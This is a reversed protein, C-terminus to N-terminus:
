HNIQHIILKMFLTKTRGLVTSVTCQVVYSRGPSGGSLFVKVRPQDVLINAVELGGGSCKVTPFGSFSDGDALLSEYVFTYDLVDGNEKYCKKM